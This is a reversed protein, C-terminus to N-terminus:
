SGDPTERVVGSDEEVRMADKGKRVEEARKVSGVSGDSDSDNVRRQSMMGDEAAITDNFEGLLLVKADSQEEGPRDCTQMDIEEDEAGGAVCDSCSSMVGRSGGSDVDVGDVAKDREHVSEERGM